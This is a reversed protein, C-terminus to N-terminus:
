PHILNLDFEDNIEKNNFHLPGPLGGTWKLDEFHVQCFFNRNM